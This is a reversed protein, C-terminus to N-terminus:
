FIEGNFSFTWASGFTSGREARHVRLCRSQISIPSSPFAGVYKSSNRLCRERTGGWRTLKPCVVTHEGWQQLLGAVICLSPEQLVQQLVSPVSLPVFLNGGSRNGHLRSVKAGLSSFKEAGMRLLLATLSMLFASSACTSGEGGLLEAAGRDNCMEPLGEHLFIATSLWACIDSKSERMIGKTTMAKPHNWFSRTFCAVSKWLCLFLMSACLDVALSVLFLPCSSLDIVRSLALANASTRQGERGVNGRVQRPLM